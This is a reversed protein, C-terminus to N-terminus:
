LRPNLGNKTLLDSWCTVLDWQRGTLPSHPHTGQQNPIQELTVAPTQHHRTHSTQAMATLLSAVSLTHIMLMVVAVCNRISLVKREQSVCDRAASGQSLMLSIKIPVLQAPPKCTNFNLWWAQKAKCLVDWYSWTRYNGEPCQGLVRVCKYLQAWGWASLALLPARSGTNSRGAIWYPDSKTLSVFLETDASLADLQVM